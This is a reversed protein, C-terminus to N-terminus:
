EDADQRQVEAAAAHGVELGDGAHVAGLAAAGEVAAGDVGPGAAVRDVQADVGDRRQGGRVERRAARVAGWFERVEVWEGRSAVSCAHTAAPATCLMNLTPTWGCKRALLRSPLM